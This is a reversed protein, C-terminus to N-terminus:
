APTRNAKKEAAAQEAAAKKKAAEKSATISVGDGCGGVSGEHPFTSTVKWFTWLGEHLATGPPNVTCLGSGAWWEDPRGQKYDPWLPEDNPQLWHVCDDCRVTEKTTTGSGCRDRDKTYNWLAIVFDEDHGPHPAHRRCEKTKRHHYGCVGCDTPLKDKPEKPQPQNDFATPADGILDRWLDIDKHDVSM